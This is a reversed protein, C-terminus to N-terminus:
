LKIFTQAVSAYLGRVRIHYVGASLQRTDIEVINQGESKQQMVRRGRFDTVTYSRIEEQMEIYLKDTTPNPFVTLLKFGNPYFYDERYKLLLGYNDSLAIIEIYRENKKDLLSLSTYDGFRSISVSNELDSDFGYFYYSDEAPKDIINRAIFRYVYEEDPLTFELLDGDVFDPLYGTKVISHELLDPSTINNGIRTLDISDTISSLDAAAILVTDTQGQLNIPLLTLAYFLMSYFYFEVSM